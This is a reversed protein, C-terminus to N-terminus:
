KVGLRKCVWITVALMKIAFWRGVREGFRVKPLAEIQKKRQHASEIAEILTEMEPSM